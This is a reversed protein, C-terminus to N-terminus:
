GGCDHADRDWLVTLKNCTFAWFRGRDPQCGTAHDARARFINALAFAGTRGGWVNLKYKEELKDFVKM